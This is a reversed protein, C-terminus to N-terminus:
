LAKTWEECGRQLGIRIGGCYDALKAYDESELDGGLLGHLVALDETHKLVEYIGGRAKVSGAVSLESDQKLFLRGRVGCAERMREIEVLPSEIIGRQAATEPFCKEIFPAFRELRKEAEEIDAMTIGYAEETKKNYKPNLWVLEEEKQLSRIIDM